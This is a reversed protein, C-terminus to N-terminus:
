SASGQDKESKDNHYVTLIKHGSESLLSSMRGHSIGLVLCRVQGGPINTNKTLTIRQKTPHVGRDELARTFETMGMKHNRALWGRLAPTSISLTGEDYVPMRYSARSRELRVSVRFAPDFNSDQQVEGGTVNLLVLQNLNDNIYDMLLDIADLKQQNAHERVGPMLNIIHKICIDPDINILGAKKALLGAFHATQILGAQFREAGSFHIGFADAFADAHDSLMKSINSRGMAVLTRIFSYGVHGYNAALIKYVNMGFDRSDRFPGHVPVRLELMRKSIADYGDGSPFGKDALAFNTSVIVPANWQHIPLPTSNASLREKSRGQSVWYLFDIVEESRRTTFEDLTLPLSRMGGFKAFLANITIQGTTHLETPDGWISQAWYQALTKGGGSPGCLSLVVGRIPVLEYLPASLGVLMAFTQIHQNEEQMADGVLNWMTHDGKCKYHGVRETPDSLIIKHEEGKAIATDGLVFTQDHWGQSDINREMPRETELKRKYVRLMSQAILAQKGSDMLLGKEALGSAFDRSGEVLWSNKIEMEQWGEQPSRYWEMMVVESDGKRGYATLKIDRPFAEHVVGDSDVRIINKKPNRIFGKPLDTSATPPPVPAALQLPTTIRGKFKCGDCIGPRISDLYNCTTPGASTTWQAMKSMTSAESYDPHQDSWRIATEESDKCFAAVGLLAYWQPEKVKGQDAAMQSVQLCKSEVVVSDADYYATPVRMDELISSEPKVPKQPTSKFISPDSPTGVSLVKVLTQTKNSYTGVPRLVGGRNQTPIPDVKFGHGDFQSRLGASLGDWEIATVDRTLTWYLHLGNGSNVVTPAPLGTSYLFNVLADLADLQSPYDKGPGCDVDAVLSRFHAANKKTRGDAANTFGAVAFFTATNKSDSALLASELTPIDGFFQNYRKTGIYFAAFM